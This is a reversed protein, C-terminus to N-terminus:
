HATLKNNWAWNTTSYSPYITSVVFLKLTSKQITMTRRRRRWSSRCQRNLPDGLIILAWCVCEILIQHLLAGKASSFEIYTAHLLRWFVLFELFGNNLHIGGNTSHRSSCIFDHVGKSDLGGNFTVIFPSECSRYDKISRERPPLEWQHLFECIFLYVNWM